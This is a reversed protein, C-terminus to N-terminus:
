EIRCFRSGPGIEEFGAGDAWILGRRDMAVERPERSGQLHLFAGFAHARAAPSGPAHPNPQGRYGARAYDALTPLTAGNTEAHADILCGPRDLMAWEIAALVRERRPHPAYHKAIRECWDLPTIREGIAVLFGFAECAHRFTTLAHPPIEAAPRHTVNLGRHTRTIWHM